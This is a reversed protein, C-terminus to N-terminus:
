KVSYGRADMCASFGRKFTDMQKNYAAKTQNFQQRVQAAAQAAQQKSQENPRASSGEAGCRALRLELLRM